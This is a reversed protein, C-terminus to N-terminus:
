CCCEHMQLLMCMRRCKCCANANVAHMLMWLKCCCANANIWCKCCCADANATAHMLMQLLMCGCECCAGVPMQQLMCWCEYCHADANVSDDMWRHYWLLDILICTWLLLSFLGFFPLSLHGILAFAFNIYCEYSWNKILKTAIWWVAIAETSQAHALRSSAM